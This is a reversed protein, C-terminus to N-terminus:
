EKWFDTNIEMLETEVEHLTGAGTDQGHGAELAHVQAEIHRIESAFYAIQMDDSSIDDSEWITAPILAAHSIAPGTQPARGLLALIALVIVAAAAGLARRLLHASKRGSSLKTAIQLKIGVITEARPEPAPYAKLTEDADRIDQAASEAEAPGMFREFLERLNDQNRNGM